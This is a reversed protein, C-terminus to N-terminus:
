RGEFCIAPAFLPRSWSGCLLLGDGCKRRDSLLAAWSLFDDFGCSSCKVRWSTTRLEATSSELGMYNRFVLSFSPLLKCLSSPVGPFWLAAFRTLSGTSVINSAQPTPRTTVVFGASEWLALGCM